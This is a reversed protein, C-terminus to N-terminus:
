DILFGEKSFYFSSNVEGTKQIMQLIIESLLEYASQKDKALGVVYIDKKKYYSFIMERSSIIDFNNQGNSPLCICYIERFLSPKNLKNKNRLPHKIMTDDMWLKGYWKVM